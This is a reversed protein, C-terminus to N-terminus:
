ATLTLVLAVLGAGIVGTFIMWKRLADHLVREGQRKQPPPTLPPALVVNEAQEDM